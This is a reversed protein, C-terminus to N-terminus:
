GATHDRSPWDLRAFCLLAGLAALYLGVSVLMASTGV